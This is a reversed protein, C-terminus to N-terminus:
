AQPISGPGFVTKFTAKPATKKQEMNNKALVATVTSPTYESLDHPTTKGTQTNWTFNGTKDEGKSHFAYLAERVSLNHIIPNKVM